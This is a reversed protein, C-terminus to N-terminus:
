YRVKREIELLNNKYSEYRSKSIKEEKLAEIVKCGPESLHKCNNFKCHNEFKAIEPYYKQLENGKCELINFSTFGPTDFIWGEGFRFMEAHRTTHKGKSSKKGIEGTQAKAFPIIRNLLTSKGVGSPGALAATKDKIITKLKDLEDKDYPEERLNSGKDEEAKNENYNKNLFIIDYNKGYIDLVKEKFDEDAIDMKSFCLVPVVENMEAMIIFKDLLNWNINPNKSSAFILFIDVNSIPPRIFSNKRTLIKFISGDSGKFDSLQFEVKDGVMLVQKQDKIKKEGKCRYVKEGSYIYYFGGIGKTVLGIM